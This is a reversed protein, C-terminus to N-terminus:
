KSKGSELLVWFPTALAIWFLGRDLWFGFLLVILGARSTTRFWALQQDDNYQPLTGGRATISGLKEDPIEGGNSSDNREFLVLHIYAIFCILAPLGLLMGIAFFDNLEIAMGEVVKEPKYFNGYVEKPQNWGFGAFPRGMMMQLGGKYANMRNQWSFDNVNGASFVRRVIRQETYRFSWFICVVLTVVITCISLWHREIKFSRRKEIQKHRKLQWFYGLYILGFFTGLWAGRSYSKVLGVLMCTIVCFFLFFFTFNLNITMWISGEHSSQKRKCLRCIYGTAIVVGTGMLLGFTNPNTWAGRWRPQGRYLIQDGAEPHFIAGITFVGILAIVITQHFLVSEGRNQRYCKLLNVGQGITLGGLLVVFDTTSAAEDLRMVYAVLGSGLLGSLFIAPMSLHAVSSKMRSQNNRTALQEGSLGLQWKVFLLLCVTICVIGIWQREPQNFASFVDDRMRRLIDWDISITRLYEAEILLFLVLTLLICNTVRRMM